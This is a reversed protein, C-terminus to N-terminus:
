LGLLRSSRLWMMIKTDQVSRARGDMCEERAGQKFTIHFEQVGRDGLKVPHPLRMKLKAVCDFESTLTRIFNYCMDVVRIIVPTGNAPTAGTRRETMLWKYKANPALRSLHVLPILDAKYEMYLPLFLVFNALSTPGPQPIFAAIYQATRSFSIYLRNEIMHLPRFETRLQQCTQTLGLFDFRGETRTHNEHCCAYIHNRLEGPLSLLHPADM